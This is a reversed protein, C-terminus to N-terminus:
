GNQEKPPWPFFVSTTRQYERYAEGRSALANEETPPIGTIKFLFLLMVAPGFLTAWGYPAQWAIAVYAWWHVWEFFYNPHRSYRWLGDRCVKGRNAPNSRFRALQRDAVSEGALAVLWILIGLADAAGLPQANRSAILMPTAFLASWFAQVQFFGFLKRQTSVGWDRRLKRYRGDEAMGMVRKLLYGGLRLAWIAAMAAIMLRRSPEGDGAIAFGASLLGVGLAWGVDVIGADGTRKQVLWVLAMALAMVVWGTLWTLCPNVPM